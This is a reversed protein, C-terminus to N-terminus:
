SSRAPLGAARELDELTAAAELPPNAFAPELGALRGLHYDLTARSFKVGHATCVVVASEGRGVAGSSVLQMWGAVAVGSNPCVSIGCADVLAKADMIEAEGVETLVGGSARVAALAKRASVPDGIRIASALTPGARVASVREAGERFARALPAAASAQVGGLRPVAAVLGLEVM